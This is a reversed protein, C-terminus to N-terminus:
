RSRRQRKEWRAFHSLSCVTAYRVQQLPVTWQVRALLLLKYFSELRQLRFLRPIPAAQPTANDTPLFNQEPELLGPPFFFRLLRANVQLRVPVPM